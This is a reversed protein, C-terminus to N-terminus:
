NGIASVTAKWIRPRHCVTRINWKNIFPMENGKFNKGLRHRVAFEKNSSPTFSEPMLYYEHAKAGITGLILLLVALIFNRAM